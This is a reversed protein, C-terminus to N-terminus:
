SRITNKVLGFLIHDQWRGNIQFYKRAYGEEEFGLRSLLANSRENGPLCAANIRHLKLTEFAYDIILRGAESMYGQGEYAIDVWYGLSANQAAGRCIHNLNIGGILRDMHKDFILFCYARDESWDRAHRQMRRTFFNQTLADMTWVPEYTKLRDMNATRVRRWEPYDNAKCPRVQVRFGELTLDPLSPLTQAKRGAWIM